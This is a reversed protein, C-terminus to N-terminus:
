YTSIFDKVVTLQNELLQPMITKKGIMGRVPDDEGFVKIRGAEM